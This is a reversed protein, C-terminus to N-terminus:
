YKYRYGLSHTPISWGRDALAAFCAFLLMIFIIFGADAEYSGTTRAIVGTGVTSVLWFLILAIQWRVPKWKWTIGKVDTPVYMELSSGCKRCIKDDDRNSIGCKPCEM